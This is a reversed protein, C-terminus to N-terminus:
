SGARVAPTTPRACVALCALGVIAAVTQVRWEYAFLAIGCSGFLLRVWPPIRRRLFGEIALGLCVVALTAAGIHLTVAIPNGRLLVEESYAFAFPVLFAVISLRVATTAIALPNAEALPAAAFAAVAVPPTMASLSAFYLLFLHAALTSLGLKVLAPSVLVAALVYVSPVPMGM